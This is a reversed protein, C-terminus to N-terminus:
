GELNFLNGIVWGSPGRVLSLDYHSSQAAVRGLVRGDADEVEYASVDYRVDALATDGEIDHIRLSRITWVADPTIQGQAAGDDIVRIPRYCPCGRTVMTKLDTTDNTQAARTLEAYYARVAAEVEEEPTAPSQSATSSSTTPRDSPVTSPQDPDSCAALVGVVLCVRLLTGTPARM